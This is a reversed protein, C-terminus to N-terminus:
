KAAHEEGPAHSYGGSHERTFHSFPFTFVEPRAGAPAGPLRMRLNLTLPFQLKGEFATELRTGDVAPALSTEPAELSGGWQVTGSAQRLADGFLPRSRADYLYVCFIGPPLLVGELHHRNDLAMFFTGGHRPTHDLHAGPRFPQMEGGGPDHPEGAAASSMAASAPEDSTAASTDSLGHSNSPQPAGSAASDAASEAPVAPGNERSCSLLLIGLLLLFLILLHAPRNRPV